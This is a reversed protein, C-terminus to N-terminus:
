LRPFLRPRFHLVEAGKNCKNVIMFGVERSKRCVIGIAHMHESIHSASNSVSQVIFGLLFVNMHMTEMMCPHPM